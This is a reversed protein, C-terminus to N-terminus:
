FLANCGKDITAYSKNRVLGVVSRSINPSMAIGPFGISQPVLPPPHHGVYWTGHHENDFCKQIVIIKLPRPTNAARFMNLQLCTHQFKRWYIKFNEYSIKFKPTIKLICFRIQLCIMQMARWVSPRM